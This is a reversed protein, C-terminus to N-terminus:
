KRRLQALKVTSRHYQTKAKKVATKAKKVTAKTRKLTATDRTLKKTARRQKSQATVLKTQARKLTRKASVLNQKATKLQVTATNLSVTYGKQTLVAQNYDAQAHRSTTLVQQYATQRTAQTAQAHKLETQAMALKQKAPKTAQTTFTTGSEPTAVVFNAFNAKDLNFGVSLEQQPEKTTHYGLLTQAESLDGLFIKSLFGANWLSDKLLAMTYKKQDAKTPSAKWAVLNNKERVPYFYRGFLMNGGDMETSLTGAMQVHYQNGVLEAARQQATTGNSTANGKAPYVINIMKDAGTTQVIGKMGLQRRTSDLVAIVVNTLHRSQQKSISNKAKYLDLSTPVKKLLVTNWDKNTPKYTIKVGNSIVSLYKILTNSDLKRKQARAMLVKNAKKAAASVTVKIGEAKLNVRSGSVAKLATQATKVRKAAAATTVKAQNLSTKATAQHAKAAELSSRTTRVAQDAQERRSTDHCKTQQVVTVVAQAARVKKQASAVKVQGKKVSRQITQVSGKAKTVAKKDTTVKSQARHQSTNAVTLKKQATVKGRKATVVARKARTISTSKGTTVHSTVTKAAASVPAVSAGGAIM